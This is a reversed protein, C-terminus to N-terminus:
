IFRNLLHIYFKYDNLKVILEYFAETLNYKLNSRAEKLLIQVTAQNIVM